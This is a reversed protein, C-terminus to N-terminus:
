SIHNVRILIVSEPDRSLVTILFDIRCKNPMKEKVVRITEIAKNSHLVELIYNGRVLWDYKDPPEFKM